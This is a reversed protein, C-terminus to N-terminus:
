YKKIFFKKLYKKLIMLSNVIILVTSPAIQMNLDHQRVSRSCARKLWSSIIVLLMSLMNPALSRNNYKSSITTDGMQTYCYEESSM